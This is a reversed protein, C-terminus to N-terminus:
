ERFGRAKRKMWRWVDDAVSRSEESARQKIMSLVVLLLEPEECGFREPIFLLDYWFLIEYVSDDNAEDKEVFSAIDKELSRIAVRSKRRVWLTVVEDLSLITTRQDEPLHDQIGDSLERLFDVLQVYGRM